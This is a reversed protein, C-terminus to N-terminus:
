VWSWRPVGWVVPLSRSRLVQADPTIEATGCYGESMLTFATLLRSKLPFRPSIM